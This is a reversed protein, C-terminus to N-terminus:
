EVIEGAIASAVCQEMSALAPQYGYGGLINVIKASNSLLRRWGNAESIERALEARSSYGLVGKTADNILPVAPYLIMYGIAWIVTGWFTWVWWRPLPTNLEKIGDWAHGTTETGSIEDREVKAM